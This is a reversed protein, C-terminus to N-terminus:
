NEVLKMFQVKEPIVFVMKDGLEGSEILNAIFQKTNKVFLSKEDNLEDETFDFPFRIILCNDLIAESEINKNKFVGVVKKEADLTEVRYTKTTKFDVETNSM